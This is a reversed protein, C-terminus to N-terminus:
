SGRLLPRGPGTGYLAGAHGTLVTCGGSDGLCDWVAGAAPLRGLVRGVQDVAILRGNLSTLAILAPGDDLPEWANDATGLKGQPLHWVRGDADLLFFHNNAVTLGRAGPPCTGVRAWHGPVPEAPRRVVVGDRCAGYLAAPAGPM